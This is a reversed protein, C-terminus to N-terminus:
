PAIVVPRRAELSPEIGFAYEAMKRYHYASIWFTGAVGAGMFDFYDERPLTVVRGDGDVRYADVNINQDPYEPYNQDRGYIPDDYVHELGLNHGMEHIMVNINYWGDNPNNQSLRLYSFPSNYVGRGRAYGFPGSYVEPTLVAVRFDKHSRDWDFDGNWYSDIMAHVAAIDAGSAEIEVSDIVVAPGIRHEGIVLPMYDYMPLHIPQWNTLPDRWGHLISGYRYDATALFHSEIKETEAPIQASDTVVPHFVVDSPYPIVVDVVYARAANAATDNLTWGEVGTLEAQYSLAMERWQGTVVDATLWAAAPENEALQEATFLVPDVTVPVDDISLNLRLVGGAEKLGELDSRDPRSSSSIGLSKDDNVVDVHVIVPKGPPQTGVLVTGGSTNTVRVATITITKEYDPHVELAAGEAPAATREANAPPGASEQPGTPGPPGECSLFVAAALALAYRAPKSM